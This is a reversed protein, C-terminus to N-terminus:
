YGKLRELERRSVIVSQGDPRFVSVGTHLRTDCKVGAFRFGQDQAAKIIAQRKEELALAANKGGQNFIFSHNRRPRGGSRIFAIVETESGAAISAVEARTIQVQHCHFQKRTEGDEFFFDDIGLEPRMMSTITQFARPSSLIVQPIHLLHFHHFQGTSSVTANADSPIFGNLHETIVCDAAFAGPLWLSSGLGALTLISGQKLLDRRKM